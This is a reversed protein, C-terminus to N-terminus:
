RRLIWTIIKCELVTLSKTDMRRHEQVSAAKTNCKCRSKGMNVACKGKQEVCKLGDDNHQEGSDSEAVLDKAQNSVIAHNKDLAQVALTPTHLKHTPCSTHVSKHVIDLTDHKGLM